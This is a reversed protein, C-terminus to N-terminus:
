RTHQDQQLRELLADKDHWVQNVWTAFRARFEPDNAYDGQRVDPPIPRAHVHVQLRAVRGTLLDWLTPIGDPYHITVDLVSQFREGLVQLALAFGGAKPTLLHQFASQQRARKEPTFRTGELFNMVSTPTRSFKQCALRTTELDKGRMEPHKRLYSLSYRKMFPYDLAWWALGLFPVWILQQKLFFKLFPIRGNFVHQLVVIDVWSQHNCVVMYWADRALTTDCHLQWQNGQAWQLWGVNFANWTQAIWTIGKALAPSVYPVPLALRVLALLLLWPFWFLTNLLLLLATLVGMVAAPLFKLM